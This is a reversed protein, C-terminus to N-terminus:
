LPGKKNLTDTHRCRLSTLSEACVWLVTNLLVCASFLYTFWIQEPRQAVASPAIVLGVVGAAGLVASAIVGNRLRM